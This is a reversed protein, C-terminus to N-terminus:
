LWAQVQFLEMSCANMAIHKWLERVVPIVLLIWAKKERHQKNVGKQNCLVVM